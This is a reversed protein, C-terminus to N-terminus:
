NVEGVKRTIVAAAGLYTGVDGKNYAAFVSPNPVILKYTAGVGIYDAYQGSPAETMKILIYRPQLQRSRKSVRMPIFPVGPTVPGSPADNVLSNFTALETEPQLRVPFTLADDSEYLTDIFAGASM